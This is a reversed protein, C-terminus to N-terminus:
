FDLLQLIVINEPLQYVGTSKPLNFTSLRQLESLESLSTRVHVGTIDINHNFKFNLKLITIMEM